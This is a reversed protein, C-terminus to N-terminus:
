SKVREKRKRFTGYTLFTLIGALALIGKVLWISMVQWGLASTSLGLMIISCILVWMGFTFGTLKLKAALTTPHGEEFRKWIKRFLWVTAGVVLVLVAASIIYRIM